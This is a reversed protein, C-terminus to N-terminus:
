HYQKSSKSSFGSSILDEELLKDYMAEYSSLITYLTATEIVSDPLMAVPTQNENCLEEIKDKVQIAQLYTNFLTKNDWIRFKRDSKSM